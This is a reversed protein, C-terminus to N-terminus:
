TEATTLHQPLQVVSSGNPMKVATM